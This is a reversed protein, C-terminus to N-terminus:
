HHDNKGKKKIVEFYSIQYDEVEGFVSEGNASADPDCYSLVGRTWLKEKFFELGGCHATFTSAEPVKFWTLYWIELCPYNNPFFRKLNLSSNIVQENKEWDSNMNWDVFFALDLDQDFDEATRQSPLPIRIRWIIFIKMKPVWNKPGPEFRPPFCELGGSLRFEGSKLWTDVDVKV